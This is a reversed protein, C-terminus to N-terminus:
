CGVTFGPICRGMSTMTFTWPPYFSRPNAMQFWFSPSGFLALSTVRPGYVLSALGVAEPFSFPAGPFTFDTNLTFDSNLYLGIVSSRFGGVGLDNAMATSTWLVLAIAWGAVVAKLHSSDNM